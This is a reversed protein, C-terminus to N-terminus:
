GLDAPASLRGRVATAAAVAPSVLHTRGGKGQRGEFNRNSTSASREGPALQDPNMGLCMSCGAQRWEAGAATFIAGLGEDEAQARVRMSGPVVLMRVGDAVTRGDLIKAAVRLDEIRGNTCSGLFVTDVAIDRLPTGPELGMYTLAKEASQSEGEDLIEAPDPVSASLPAGQGPNTGWTVFPTLASGDIRVEKDFVAGDDTVLTSWDAVAQEWLEGSPAHPRGKIYDFTIEDPAIMGARAGAEISMNCITMRAEMSMTRIAEGRYEIVYGQGGGTGIQAIVALILDKSGVDDGLEGDVTVSMTKFPRLSLTQTALVHEVESTGIGMALAGFAGHTSTHSDGCVVTTGPQTLGLQPGIIHVIGQEIDGMSHLRIGFEECNRRLTDVQTRSVLDAIPQDIDVTPVNHDETAITLDPRRVPRGALRLGDFAQPSTVEHVLHLDIYVLDPKTADGEGGGRVVVHQDWVKEALTKAAM